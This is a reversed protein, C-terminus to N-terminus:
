GRLHLHSFADALEVVSPKHRSQYRITRYGAAKTIADRRADRFPDHCRDDLEILAVVRMSADCVVYDIILRDFRSRLKWRARTPLRGDDTILASMSVQPFVHLPFPAAARTLRRFFEIENPTMIPKPIIHGSRRALTAFSILVLMAIAAYLACTVPDHGLQPIDAIFRM